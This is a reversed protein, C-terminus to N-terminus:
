LKVEQAEAMEKEWVDLPVRIKRAYYEDLAWRSVYVQGDSVFDVRIRFGNCVYTQGPTPTM